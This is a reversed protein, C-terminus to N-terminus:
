KGTEAMSIYDCANKLLPDASAFVSNAIAMGEPDLLTWLLSAGSTDWLYFATNGLLAGAAVFLNWRGKPRIRVWTAGGHDSPPPPSPSPAPAPLKCAPGGAAWGLLLEQGWGPHPSADLREVRADFGTASLNAASV